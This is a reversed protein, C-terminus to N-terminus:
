KCNKVNIPTLKNLWKNLEADSPNRLKKTGITITPFNAKGNEYLSRLEKEYRKNAVVDLFEFNLDIENLFGVYHLSKHCEKSGYLKIVLDNKM